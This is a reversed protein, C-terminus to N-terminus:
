FRMGVGANVNVVFLKRKDTIRDTDITVTFEPRMEMYDAKLIAFFRKNIDYKIDAGGAWAFTGVWDETM